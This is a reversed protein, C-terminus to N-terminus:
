GAEGAALAKDIAQDVTPAEGIFAGHSCWAHNGDMRPGANRFYGNGRLWRYRGADKKLREVAGILGDVDGEAVGLMETLGNLIQQQATITNAQNEMVDILELMVEPRTMSAFRSNAASTPGNGYHAINVESDKTQLFYFEKGPSMDVCKQVSAGIESHPIALVSWVWEGQTAEQAVEKLAALYERFENYKSM